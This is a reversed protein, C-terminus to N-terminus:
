IVRVDGTPMYIGMQLEFLFNRYVKEGNEKRWSCGRSSCVDMSCVGNKMWLRLSMLLKPLVKSIVELDRGKKVNGIRCDEVWTPM